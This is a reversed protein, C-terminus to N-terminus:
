LDTAYTALNQRYTRTGKVSSSSQQTRGFTTLDGNINGNAAMIVNRQIRTFHICKDKFNYLM